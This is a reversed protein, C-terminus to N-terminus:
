KQLIIDVLATVDAINVMGDNNVDCANADCPNPNKNLIYDVLTTVDSINVSGDMNTDGALIEEYLSPYVNSTSSGNYQGYSEHAVSYQITYNDSTLTFTGNNYPEITYVGAVSSDKSVNFTKFTGSHYLYRGQSDM